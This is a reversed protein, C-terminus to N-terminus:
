AHRNGEEIEVVENWEIEVPVTPHHENAEAQVVVELALKGRAEETLGTVDFRADLYVREKPAPPWPLATLTCNEFIAWFGYEDVGINGSLDKPDLSSYGGYGHSMSYQDLADLPNVAEFLTKENQVTKLPDEPHETILYRPM